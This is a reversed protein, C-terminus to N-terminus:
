ANNLGGVCEKLYPSNLMDLVKTLTDIVGAGTVDVVWEDRYYISCEEDCSFDLSYEGNMDLLRAKIESSIEACKRYMKRSQAMLEFLAFNSSLLVSNNGYDMNDYLTRVMWPERASGSFLVTVGDNFDFPRLVECIKEAYGQLEELWGELNM